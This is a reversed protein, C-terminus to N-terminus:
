DEGCGPDMLSCNEAAAKANPNAAREKEAETQGTWNAVMKKGQEKGAAWNVRNGSAQAEQAGHAAKEAATEPMGVANAAGIVMLSLFLLKKM